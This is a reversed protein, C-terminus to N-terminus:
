ASRKDFTALARFYDSRNETPDKEDDIDAVCELNADVAAKAIWYAQKESIRKYTFVTTAIESAFGLENDKVTAIIFDATQAEDQALKLSTLDTNEDRYPTSFANARILNKVNQIKQYTNM